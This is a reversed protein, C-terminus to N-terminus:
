KVSAANNAPVAVGGHVPQMIAIVVAAQGFFSRSRDVCDAHTFKKTLLM